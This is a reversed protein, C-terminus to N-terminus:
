SPELWIYEDDARMPTHDHEMTKAEPVPLNDAILEEISIRMGKRLSEIVEGRTKKTLVNSSIDLCYGGYSASGDHDVELEIVCLYKM